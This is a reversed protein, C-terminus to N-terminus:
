QTDKLELIRNQRLLQITITICPAVKDGKINESKIFSM